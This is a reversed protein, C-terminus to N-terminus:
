MGGGYKESHYKEIPIALLRYKGLRLCENMHQERNKVHEIVYSSLCLDFSKSKLPINNNIDCKLISVNKVYILENKTHRLIVDSFDIATNNKIGLRKSIESVLVGSGCGLDLINNFHNNFYNEPILNCLTDALINASERYHNWYGEKQYSFVNEHEHTDGKPTMFTEKEILAEYYQETYEDLYNTNQKYYKM